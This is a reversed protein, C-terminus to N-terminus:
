ANQNYLSSMAARRAASAISDQVQGASVNSYTKGLSAYKSFLSSLMQSSLGSMRAQSQQEALKRQQAFLGSGRGFGHSQMATLLGAEEAAGRQAEQAFLGSSGYQGGSTAATIAQTDIQPSGSSDFQIIRDPDFADQANLTSYQGDAGKTQWGYQRMTNDIFNGYDEVANRYALAANIASNAVDVM